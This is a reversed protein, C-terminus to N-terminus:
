DAQHWDRIRLEFTAAGNYRDLRPSYALRLRDGKNIGSLTNQRSWIKGKVMMGNQEDQMRLLFLGPRPSYLDRLTLPPSVFVPEANGQGFPQLMELEKLLIANLADKVGLEGDTKIQPDPPTDGLEDKVAADFRLRFDPLKELTLSLGAAMSHGGFGLFLDACGTLSAHLDFGEISRGSGKLAAGDACLLVAPRNFEEVMRSAVIGIVGVHWDPHYLVLGMCGAATQEAAQEMAEKRINEETHRRKVNLENLEAALRAAEEREQTLLLRLATESRGMRGAANIRPALSYVVQGASLYANPAYNSAAKLAAIGPRTAEALLLLGNKVLIRNQGVLKSVDALTGLAVFDLLPRVDISPYGNQVLLREVGAMLLFAMGVGSLYPCPSDAITPACVVEAEPLPFSPLHHDSIVIQLGLERAAKIEAHDGLGCDVTLIVRAGQGALLRLDPLNLGYGKDLRDPIHTLIPLHHLRFFDAVLATATIGDVDYDGWVVIKEGALIARVLLEAAKILGPWSELPALHRLGPNLFIDMEEPSGVGRRWLLGALFPSINLGHAWVELNEPLSQEKNSRSTWSYHM